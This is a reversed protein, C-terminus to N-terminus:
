DSEQLSLGLPLRGAKAHPLIVVEIWGIVPHCESEGREKVRLVLLTGQPEGATEPSVVLKGQEALMESHTPDKRNVPPAVDMAALLAIVARVM